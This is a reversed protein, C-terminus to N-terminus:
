GHFHALAFGALGLIAMGISTWMMVKTPVSNHADRLEQTHQEAITAQLAIIDDKTAVRQIAERILIVAENLKEIARENRTVRQEVADVRAGLTAITDQHDM